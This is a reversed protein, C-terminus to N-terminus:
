MNKYFEHMSLQGVNIFVYFCTYLFISVFLFYYFFAIWWGNSFKNFNIMNNIHLLILLEQFSKFFLEIMNSSIYTKKKHCFQLWFSEYM